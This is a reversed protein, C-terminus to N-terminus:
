RQAFQELAHFTLRLRQCQLRRPLQTHGILQHGAFESFDFVQNLLKLDGRLHELIRHHRRHGGDVTQGQATTAFEDHVAVTCHRRQLTVDTQNFDTDAQQRRTAAALFKRQAGCGVGLTAVHRREQLLVEFGHGHGFDPPTRFMRALDAVQARCVADNHITKFQEFDGLGLNARHSSGTIPRGHARLRYGCQAAATNRGDTSEHFVHAGAAMYGFMIVQNAGLDRRDHAAAVDFAAAQDILLPEEVKLTLM